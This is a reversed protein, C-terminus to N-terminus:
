EKGDREQKEKTSDLPTDESVTTSNAGSQGERYESTNQGSTPKNCGVTTAIAGFILTILHVRVIVPTM